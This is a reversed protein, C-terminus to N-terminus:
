VCDQLKLFCYFKNENLAIIEFATKNKFLKVRFNFNMEKLVDVMDEYINLALMNYVLKHNELSKDKLNQIFIKFTSMNKNLLIFELIKDDGVQNFDFIFNGDKMLIEFIKMSKSEIAYHLFKKKKLEYNLKKLQVIM